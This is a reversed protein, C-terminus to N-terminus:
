RSGNMVAIAANFDATSPWPNLWNTCPYGVLQTYMISPQTCTGPHQLGFVHGFEHNIFARGTDNLQAGSSFVLYVYAWRSDWYGFQDNPVPYAHRVCNWYGAPLGCYQSWDWGYHAEIEITERTAPDYSLCNRQTAILDIRGGGLNDWTKSDELGTLTQNLFSRASAHSVQSTDFSEACFQEDINTFHMSHLRKAPDPNILSASATPTPLVLLVMVWFLSVWAAPRITLM